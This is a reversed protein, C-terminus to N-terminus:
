NNPNNNVIPDDKWIIFQNSKVNPSEISTSDENNDNSNDNNYVIDDM